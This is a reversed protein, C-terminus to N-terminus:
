GGGGPGGPFGGGGLPGDGGFPGSPGWPGDGIIWGAWIFPRWDIGSAGAKPRRAEIATLIGSSLSASFDAVTVREARELAEKTERSLGASTSKAELM